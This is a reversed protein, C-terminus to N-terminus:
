YGGVWLTNGSATLASDLFSAPLDAQAALTTSIRGRAASITTAPGPSSFTTTCGHLSPAAAATVCLVGFAYRKGVTVTYATSLAPTYETTTAAWMSTTNACSAVLTGDHTTEDIEYLGIRCVSPTAGAATSHVATSFNTITRTQPAIVYALRLLQSTMSVGASSAFQRNFSEVGKYTGVQQPIFQYYSGM